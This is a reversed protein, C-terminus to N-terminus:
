NGFKVQAALTLADLDLHSAGEVFSASQFRYAAFADLALGGLGFEMGARLAYFPNTAWGAGDGTLYGIGIGAGGYLAGLPLLGWAAPQVLHEDSGLYDPIWELSGEVKVIALPVTLSGFVSFDDRSVGEVGGLDDITRLYHLGAGFQTAAAPALPVTGAVSGLLIVLPRITRTVEREGPHSPSRPAQRALFSLRLPPFGLM